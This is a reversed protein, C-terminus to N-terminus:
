GPLFFLTMGYFVFIYTLYLLVQIMVIQRVILSPNFTDRGYFKGKFRSLGGM